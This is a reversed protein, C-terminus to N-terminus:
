GSFETKTGKYPTLTLKSKWRSDRDLLAEAAVQRALKRWLERDKTASAAPPVVFSTNRLYTAIPGAGRHNLDRPDKGQQVARIQQRLLKRFMIVGRDSAGLHELAHIAIPRQSVQAEYDGPRQQQEAYTRDGRQGMSKLVADARDLEKELLRQYDFVITHTNDVPVHWRTARPPCFTSIVCDGDSETIHFQHINPMIWESWRVWVVDKHRGVLGSIMGLPTEVWDFEPMQGDDFRYGSFHHGSIRQHLIPIHIPDATNEKLQLWNCPMVHPIGPMVHYGPVEYTDFIPFAPKKGPPGMYIFLLGNHEHTPYAPHFLKEKLRSGAAETPTDLITGDVDFQWGHYCCRIGQEQPVGFELSTGRHTCHLELCGLRGGRDRFVVLDEDLIKIAKPREQVEKSLAVPQWFRRLYEGCPTGPGVHTLEADERPVRAGSALNGRPALRDHYAGYPMKLFFKKGGKASGGKTRKM